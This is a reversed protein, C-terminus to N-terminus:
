TRRTQPPPVQLDVVIPGHDSLGRVRPTDWVCAERVLKFTEEDFLLHDDQLIGATPGHDTGWYSEQEMDGGPLAEKMHGSDLERWFLEHGYEPGYATGLARGTNFDGGVMFRESLSDTVVELTKRLNPIVKQLATPDDDLRTHINAITMDGLGDVDCSAVQVAGREAIDTPRIELRTVPTGVRSLIASGWTLAKLSTGRELASTPLVEYDKLSRVRTEQVLAIHPHLEELLFTWAEEHTKAPRKWCDMNWTVIRM